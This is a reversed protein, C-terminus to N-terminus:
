PEIRQKISDRTKRITATSRSAVNSLERQTIELDLRESTYYLAAAAITAPDIGAVAGDDMRKIVIQVFEEVEMELEFERCYRQAFKEAEVVGYRQGLRDCIKGYLRPLTKRGSLSLVNRGEYTRDSGYKRTIVVEGELDSDMVITNASKVDSLTRPVEHKRCATYVAAATLDSISYNNVLDTRLIRRYFQLAEDEVVDELDLRTSLRSIENKAMDLRDRARDTTRLTETLENYQKPSYITRSGTADARNTRRRNM